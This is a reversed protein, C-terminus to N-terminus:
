SKAFKALQSPGVRGDSPGELRFLTVCHLDPDEAIPIHFHEIWVAPDEGQPSIPSALTGLGTQLFSYALM